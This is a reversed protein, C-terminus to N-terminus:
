PYWAQPSLTLLALLVEAQTTDRTTLTAHRETPLTTALHIQEHLCLTKYSGVPRAKGLGFEHMSLKGMIIAGAEELKRVCWSTIKDGNVEQGTYDNVSGLSTTYGEMDYEDKVATPVGDLPGLSRGTKYRLTSAKAADLVLDVQVDFWAVSHEGPPVTDRRILPLIVQVVDLPTLEHSLYLQRYCAVSNKKTQGEELIQNEGEAEDRQETSLSQSDDDHVPFVTPNFRPETDEIHDRIRRM